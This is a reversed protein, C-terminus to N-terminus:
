RNGEWQGEAKDSSTQEERDNIQKQLKDDAIKQQWEEVSEDFIKRQEKIQFDLDLIKKQIRDREKELDRDGVYRELSNLVIVYRSQYDERQRELNELTTREDNVRVGYDSFACGALLFFVAFAGV